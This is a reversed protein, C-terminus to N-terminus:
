AGQLNAFLQAIIATHCLQKGSARPVAIEYRLASLEVLRAGRWARLEPLYCIRVSCGSLLRPLAEAHTQALYFLPHHRHRGSHFDGAADVDRLADRAAECRRLRLRRAAGMRAHLSWHWLCVPNARNSEM